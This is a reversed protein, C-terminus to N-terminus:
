AELREVGGNFGRKIYEGDSNIQNYVLKGTIIKYCRSM